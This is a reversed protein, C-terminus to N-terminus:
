VAEENALAKVCYLTIFLDCTQNGLPAFTGSLLTSSEQSDRQSVFKKKEVMM